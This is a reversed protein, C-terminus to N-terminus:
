GPFFNFAPQVFVDACVEGSVSASSAAGTNSSGTVLAAVSDGVDGAAAESADSGIRGLRSPKKADLRVLDVVINEPSNANYEISNITAEFRDDHARIAQLVQWIVKFRKNDDLAREPTTGAPIAVPLVIYGFEKGSARRMVRGVAQIVDVQSKRPNLFM